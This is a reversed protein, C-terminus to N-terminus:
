KRGARMIEGLESRWPQSAAAPHELVPMTDSSKERAIKM